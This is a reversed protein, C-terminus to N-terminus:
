FEVRYSLVPILPVMFWEKISATNKDYYYGGINKNNTANQLDLSLTNTSHVKNRKLSFRIDTRFYDKTQLSWALNENYVEQGSAISEELNIPTRRQGGTYIARINFGFVRNKEASGVKWEKGASFTIAKGINYRTDRWQGDLAKYKSEFLSASLLFYM